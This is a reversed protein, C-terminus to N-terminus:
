VLAGKVFAIIQTTVHYDTLRAVEQGEDTKLILCPLGVISQSELDVCRSGEVPTGLDVVELPVKLLKAADQVRPLYNHCTPCWPAVYLTLKM